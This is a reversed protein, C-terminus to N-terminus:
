KSKIVDYSKRVYETESDYSEIISHELAYKEGGVQFVCDVDKNDNNMDDLYCIDAIPDFM